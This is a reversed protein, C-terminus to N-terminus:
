SGPALHCQSEMARSHGAFTERLTATLQGKREEGIDGALRIIEGVPVLAMAFELADELTRGICIDTDFRDFSIRNFGTARVM